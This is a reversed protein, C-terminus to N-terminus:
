KSEASLVTGTKPCLKLLQGAMGLALKVPERAATPIFRLSKEAIALKPSELM